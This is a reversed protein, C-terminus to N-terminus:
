FLVLQEAPASGAEFFELRFRPDYRGGNYKSCCAACAGARRPRRHYPTRARCVPCIAVYRPPLQVDGDEYLRTPDAECEVAWRKWQDGHDTRGRQDVDLAHAIEHRMVDEMVTWGYRESFPRSLSIVKRQARGGKVATYSCCGLRTRARDFAFRWGTAQLTKGRLRIGLEAMLQRALRAVEDIDFDKRVPM